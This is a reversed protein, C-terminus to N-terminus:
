EYNDVDNKLNVGPLYAVLTELRRAASFCDLITTTRITATTTATTSESMLPEVQTNLLM